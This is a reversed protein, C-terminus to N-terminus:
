GFNSSCSHILSSSLKSRNRAGNQGHTQEDDKYKTAEAQKGLKLAIQHMLFLDAGDEADAFRPVGFQWAKEYYSRAKTPNEQENAVGLWYLTGPVKKNVNFATELIAKAKEKQGVKVYAEGLPFLVGVATPYITQAEELIKIAEDHKGLHFLVKGFQMRVTALDGRLADPIPQPVPKVFGELLTLAEQYEQVNAHNMGLAFRLQAVGPNSDVAQKMVKIVDRPRRTMKLALTYQIAVSPHNGSLAFAQRFYPIAKEPAESLMYALGAAYQVFVDNKGNVAWGLIKDQQAILEKGAADSTAPSEFGSILDRCVAGPSGADQALLPNACLSVVFLSVLTIRVQAVWPSPVIAPRRFKPRRSSNKM